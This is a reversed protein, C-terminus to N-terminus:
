ETLTFKRIEVGQMNRIDDPLNQDHILISYGKNQLEVIIEKEPLQSYVTLNTYFMAEINKEYNLLVGKTINEEGLARLERAWVPNIPEPDFPKIRELSYRIPLLILLALLGVQLWRSIGSLQKEYLWYFFAATVLFLVPSTFLLYGQMKTQAFSFVILPVFFWIALALKKLDPFFKSWKWLFWVLPLYILEGYNIRIHDLFYYLPAGRGDLAETFHRINFEAAHAAQEPFTQYIYIQWPLATLVMALLVLFFYFAMKSLSFKKSEWVLLLWVPLVILAPLWKTLIAAGIAIGTLLPLFINRKEIFRITLFVSLLVFFLFHVDVHDTAVRGGTLEVILGNISFLFAALFAIRRDFWYKAISYIMGIGATSFLISPLRVAWEHTGFLKMSLAMLWLPVPQKHLWVHSSVWNLDNPNLLPTEYLTPVLPHGMMNKAVLAHFREDWTHLYLDASVFLFMSLGCLCLLLISSFVKGRQHLKWSYGYGLVWLLLITIGIIVKEM